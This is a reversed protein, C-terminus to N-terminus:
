YNNIFYDSMSGILALAYMSGQKLLAKELIGASDFNTLEAAVSNTTMNTVASISDILTEKAM